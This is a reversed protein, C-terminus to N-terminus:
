PEDLSPIIEESFYRSGDPWYFRVQKKNEFGRLLHDINTAIQLAHLSDMGDLWDPGFPFGVYEVRCMHGDHDDAVARSTRSPSLVRIEMDIRSGPAHGLSYTLQRRAIVRPADLPPEQMSTRVELGEPALDPHDRYLPNLVELLLEGLVRGMGDRLRRFEHEPCHEKAAILADNILRYVAAASESVQKAIDGDTIM